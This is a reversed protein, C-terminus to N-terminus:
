DIEFSSPETLHDWMHKKKLFWVISFSHVLQFILIRFLFISKQFSQLSPHPRPSPITPLSSCESHDNGVVM